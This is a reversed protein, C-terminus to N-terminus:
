SSSICSSFACILAITHTPLYTVSASDQWDPSQRQQAETPLTSQLGPLVKTDGAWPHLTVFIPLQVGFISGSHNKKLFFFGPFGWVSLVHSVRKPSTASHSFAFPCSLWREIWQEM